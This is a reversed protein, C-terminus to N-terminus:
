PLAELLRRVRDLREAGPATPTEDLLRGSRWSCGDEGALRALGMEDPTRRFEVAIAKPGAKVASVGKEAALLKLGALDLLTLAPEPPQGFRDHIEERFAAIESLGELRQLRSYLNLRVAPEPVFDPPFSGAMELEIRPDAEAEVREGRAARVARALLRQYLSVGILKMHGAQEDGVLDGAGRLDLDRASIALGSGLRDFAILTSLRSRTEEALERGPETLLYALGQARGRGVRGRLQHLQALGFLDARWVLITNARPVDLGTEIINTALLVDGEGNAFGVMTGDLEAVDLDGHAVRIALEPVLRALEERMPEIDEIRPAVFFSQGDRRKERMLATRVSAPDFPALSTRVPRRRAPPSALLSAEQIGVMAGQLTRPIPTASMTLVHLHPKLSRLGEKMKAGFRHEEDIVVVGLDKFTVNKGAVAHTGVVVGIEGSALREQVRKAEAGGVARSLHGVEVGTGAFRRRFTEFHQRALVTTPAVVAVQHGSLTVAAAARLAVETKGFGVDGCVLRNMAKGSALDALVAEIAATQDPTEPYPFRASFRAYAARPPAIKEAGGEERARALEVLHKATGEIEASVEARRKTWAAGKLRDLTVASEDAGYRWIRGFEEVPALLTAGGHFELRVTDHGVGDAEVMELARIVCVGHSEHIVADGVALEPEAALGAQAAAQGDFGRAGFLDAAAMVALGAQADVFGRSFDWEAKLLAGPEAALAADWGAVEAAERGLRRKLRKEMRRLEAPSGALVVRHGEDLAASVFAALAKAPDNELLFAPAAELGATDLAQANREGLSQEVDQRGLYFRERGKDSGGLEERAERADAILTAATELREHFGPTIMIAAEPLLDFVTQLPLGAQLLTQEMGERRAPGPEEDAGLILEAAPAIRVEEIPEDTRQSVPDYAHIEAVRDDEDLLVRVPRAADSPFIDLVQGLVAAEGAEDVRDDLVYGARTLQARFAERDINDGVKAHTFGSALRDAPPVRGLAAEVSVVFLRLRDAPRSLAQIASARRGMCERSPPVTDYPLCDWPPLVVVEAEPVLSKFARAIEDAAVESSALHLLGRAGAARVPEVLRSAVAASPLRPRAAKPEAPASAGGPQLPAEGIVEDADRLADM